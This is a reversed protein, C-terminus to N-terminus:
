HQALKHGAPDVFRSGERDLQIEVLPWKLQAVHGDSFLYNGATQHRRVAVQLVFNTSDYGGHHGQAFHFHDSRDYADACEGMHLTESPSPILTTKSFNPTTSNTSPPLLFNNIAFSYPRKRNSDSPCRWLNTGSTYPQLTEVWSANEHSSTPLTEDHDQAYIVSAIGIQRISSLCSISRSKEKARALAPLMLGALIAIIAIVVLLEILTFAREKQRVPNM